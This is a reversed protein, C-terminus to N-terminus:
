YKTVMPRAATAAPTPTLPSVSFVLRTNWGDPRNQADFEKYAKLILSGQMGAAPFLFAIRPGSVASFEHGTKKDYYTYGVGSDIAWFGLGINSLRTADYAGVPVNGTVYTMLNHVGQSWALLFQPSLDGFGTISDSINESRTFSVPEIGTVTQTLANSSRGYSGTISVAAQGGLVPTSFAYSPTIYLLDSPSFLHGSLIENEIQTLAGIRIARATAVDEGASVATHYYLTVLSWGPTPPVAALGGFTGPVWFSVGGQDALVSCPFLIFNGLVGIAACIPLCDRFKSVIIPLVPM